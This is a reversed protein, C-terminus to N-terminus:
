ECWLGGLNFYSVGGADRFQITRSWGRFGCVASRRMRIVCAVQKFLGAERGSGRQRLGGFFMNCAVPKGCNNLGAGGGTGVCCVGGILSIVLWGSGSIFSGQGVVQGYVGCADTQFLSM